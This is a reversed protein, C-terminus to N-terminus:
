PKLNQLPVHLSLRVTGEDGDLRLTGGLDHLRSRMSRLGFGEHWQTPLSPTGDNAVTLQWQGCDVSTVVTIRHTRAHKLANTVAERLMSGLTAKIRPPLTVGLADRQEWVLEVGAAACRKEVEARWDALAECLLSPPADIAAVAARLDHMAERALEGDPTGRLHHILRLLRAGLNDHLDRALRQRERRVIEEHDLRGSVIQEVLGHLTRALSADRTSFLRRGRGAYRLARAPMDVLAPVYLALGNDRVTVESGGDASDSVQLANFARQLTADWYTTRSRADDLVAFQALSPVLAELSTEPRGVLRQWLWQRLPFYLWGAVLLAGGLSLAQQMGLMLLFLDIAIVMGAGAVWLWIRYAWADVDFLRYRRLGLAIGTYMILFFGFAYGQSLPPIWGLLSHGPVFAIFLSCGVLTSLAFWRLAARALPEERSAHWQAGALAIALTLEILLPLRVGWNLDPALQLADTLFWPFFVAPLALLWKPEVLRKPYVAFLAVLAMGFVTSALHNTMSLARFLAEPLALERTSYIAASCTAFPFALGTLAFMRAGWDRPRAVYVWGAILLGAFGTAIQFWFAAPLDGLRRAVPQLRGHEATGDVNQWHVEVEGARLIADLRSQRAFFVSMEEYTDLYDPEELLDRPELDVAGIGRAALRLVIAGETMSSGPPPRRAVISEGTASVDLRWQLSPAQLATHTVAFGGLLCAALLGYILRAPRRFM